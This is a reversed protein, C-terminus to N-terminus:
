CQDLILLDVRALQSRLRRLCREEDAERLATLFETALWFRVRKGQGCATGSRITDVAATSRGWGVSTGPPPVGLTGRPGGHLM